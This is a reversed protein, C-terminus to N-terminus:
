VDESMQSMTDVIIKCPKRSVTKWENPELPSQGDSVVDGTNIALRECLNKQPVQLFAANMLEQTIEPKVLSSSTKSFTDSLADNSKAKAEACKDIFQLLITNVTKVDKM